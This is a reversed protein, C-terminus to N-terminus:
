TDAIAQPRDIEDNSGQIPVKAVIGFFLTFYAVM